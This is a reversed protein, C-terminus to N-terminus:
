ITSVSQSSQRVYLIGSGVPWHEVGMKKYKNPSILSHFLSVTQKIFFEIQIEGDSLVVM